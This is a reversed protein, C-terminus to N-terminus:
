VYNDAMLWTHTEEYCRKDLATAPDHAVMCQSSNQDSAWVFVPRNSSIGAFIFLFSIYLIIYVGAWWQLRQLRCATISQDFRLCPMPSSLKFINSALPWQGSANDPRLIAVAAITAFRELEQCDPTFHEIQDDGVFLCPCQPSFSLAIHPLLFSTRVTRKQRWHM